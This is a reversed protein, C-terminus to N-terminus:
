ASPLLCAAPRGQPGFKVARTRRSVHSTPPTQCSLRPDDASVALRTGLLASVDRTVQRSARGPNACRVRGTGGGGCARRLESGGTATPSGTIATRAPERGQAWSGQAWNRKYTRRQLHPM